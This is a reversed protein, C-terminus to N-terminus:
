PRATLRQRHKMEHYLYEIHDYQTPDRTFTRTTDITPEMHTEWFWIIRNALLDEVLSIDILGKKVLIGLGEFFTLLTGYDPFWDDYDKLQYKYRV